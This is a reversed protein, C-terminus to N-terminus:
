KRRKAAKKITGHKEKMPVPINRPALRKRAVVLLIAVLISAVGLGIIKVRISSKRGNLKGINM